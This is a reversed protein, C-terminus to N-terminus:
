LLLPGGVDQYVGRSQRYNDEWIAIHRAAERNALTRQAEDLFAWAKRTIAESAGVQLAAAAHGLWARRNIRYNTLSNECSVPWETIVRFMAKGYAIHDGTFAVAEDLHCSIGHWM